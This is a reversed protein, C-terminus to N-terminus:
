KLFLDDNQDNWSNLTCVGDVVDFKNFYLTIVFLSGVIDKKSTVLDGDDNKLIISVDEKTKNETVIDLKYEFSGDSNKIYPPSCLLSGCMQITTTLAKGSSEELSAIPIINSSYEIKGDDIASDFNTIGLDTITVKDSSKIKISKIKGWSEIAQTSNAVVCIKVWTLLHRFEQTEFHNNWSGNIQPAYMIDQTGDIKHSVSKNDAAIIWDKEGNRSSLDEPIPYLGVCYVPDNNTPYRLERDPLTQTNSNYTITTRAPLLTKEDPTVADEYTGSITSFWVESRLINSGSPTTGEWLDVDAIAKTGTEIHGVAAKLSITGGEEVDSKSCSFLLPLLVLTIIYISNKMNDTKNM